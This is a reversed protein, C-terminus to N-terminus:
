SYREKPLLILDACSQWGSIIKIVKKNDINIPLYNNEKSFDIIQKICSAWWECCIVPRDKNITDLMSNLIDMDGGETDIKIFDIKEKINFDKYLKGQINEVRLDWDGMAIFQNDIGGNFLSKEYLFTYPKDEPFIALNFGVINDINNTKILNDLLIYCPSPDFAYVKKALVSLPLTTDGDRAGIDLVVSDKNIYPAYYSILRYFIDRYKEEYGRHECMPFYLKKGNYLLEETRNINFNVDM